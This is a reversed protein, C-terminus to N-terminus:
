RAGEVQPRATGRWAPAIMAAALAIPVALGVVRPLVLSLDSGASPTLGLLWAWGAGATLLWHVAVLGLALGYLWTAASRPQAAFRRHEDLLLLAGPILLIHNYAFWVPILLAGVALSLSFAWRPGPATLPAHGARLWLAVVLGGLLAAVVLWGAPSLARVMYQFPVTYTNYAAVMAAWDGLWGPAALFAGAGLLLLTGGAAWAVWQREKWGRLVWLGVGLLPLVAFQPKITALALLVGATVYWGRRAASGAQRAAGALCCAAGVLLALVLPTVQRVAIAQQVPWWGITLVATLGVALRGRHPRSVTAWALASGGILLVEVAPVLVEQALPWPLAAVPAVVFAIYLPYVFGRQDHYTDSPDLVRGYYGVQIDRLVAAGYPNRGERLFEGVGVWVPYLDSGSNQLGDRAMQVQAAVQILGNEYACTGVGLLIALLLAAAGRRGM